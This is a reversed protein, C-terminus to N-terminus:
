RDASGGGAGMYKTFLAVLTRREDPSRRLLAEPEPRHWRGRVDLRLWEAPRDPALPSNLGNEM